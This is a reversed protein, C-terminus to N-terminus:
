TLAARDVKGSPLRPLTDLWMIAAPRCRAPLAARIAAWLTPEAERDGVVFAIPVQGLRRHPRGVVAAVVGHSELVEEITAPHVKEGGVLLVRDARGRLTVLGDDLAGLDGTPHWADPAIPRTPDLAGITQWPTRAEIVGDVCRAETGPLLRGAPPPRGAALARM